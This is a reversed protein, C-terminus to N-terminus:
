GRIRWRRTREPPVQADPKEALERQPWTLTPMRARSQRCASRSRRTPAPSRVTGKSRACGRPITTIQASTVGAKQAPRHRNLGDDRPSTMCEAGDSSQAARGRGHRSEVLAPRWLGTRRGHLLDDRHHARGAIAGVSQPQAADDDHEPTCSGSTWSSRSSRIYPTYRDTRLKGLPVHLWYASGIQVVSDVTLNLLEGRRM